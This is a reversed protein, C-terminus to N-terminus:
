GRRSTWQTARYATRLIEQIRERNQTNYRDRPIFVLCSVYRQLEDRWAFLRVRHREGLALIGTAIESLENGAVPFLEERPFTELIELLRKGDHVDPPLGARELVTATKRRLLPIEQTSSRYAATTYLGVFRREGVMRGHEDFRAVGVRNLYGPRHVTSRLNSKTLVLLRSGDDGPDQPSPLRELGGAHGEHEERLV